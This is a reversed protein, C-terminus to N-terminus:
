APCINTRIAIVRCIVNRRSRRTRIIIPDDNSIQCTSTIVRYGIHDTDDDCRVQHDGSLRNIDNFTNATCSAHSNDYGSARPRNAVLPLGTNITIIWPGIHCTATPTSSCSICRWASNFPAGIIPNQDIGGATSTPLRYTIYSIRNNM